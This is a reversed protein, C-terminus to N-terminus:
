RRPSMHSIVRRRRRWRRCAQNNADRRNPLPAPDAVDRGRDGDRHDHEAARQAVVIHAEGVDEVRPEVALAVRHKRAYECTREFDSATLRQGITLEDIPEVIEAVRLAGADLLWAFKRDAFATHADLRPCRLQFPLDDADNELLRRDGVHPGRGPARRWWFGRVPDLPEVDARTL